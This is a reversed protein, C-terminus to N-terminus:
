SQLSYSEPLNVISAGADIVTETVEILFDIDTRSADEASFEVESCLSCAYRVAEAAQRLMEARTIGLKYKLHLDSSALFVHIRPKAANQIAEWSRDIDAKVSRSLAVIAPGKVEDAIAKVARFDGPSAVPFGAEIADVGLRALQHAIELKEDIDLSVGPSQEGDRLTTDFLYVRNKNENM